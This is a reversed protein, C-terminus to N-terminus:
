MRLLNNEPRRRLHHPQNAPAAAGKLVAAVTAQSRTTSWTWGMSGGGVGLEYSSNFRNAGNIQTSLETGSSAPALSDTNSNAKWICCVGADNATCGTTSTSSSTGSATDADTDGGPTTQHADSWAQLAVTVRGTSGTMTVRLDGATVIAPNPLMCIAAGRTGDNAQVIIPMNQAAGGVDWTVSVLTEGSEVWGVFAVLVQDAATTSTYIDVFDHSTGTVSSDVDVASGHLAAAM